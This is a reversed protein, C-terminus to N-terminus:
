DVEQAIEDLDQVPVDVLRSPPPRASPQPRAQALLARLRDEICAPLPDKSSTVLEKFQDLLALIKPNTSDDGPKVWETVLRGNKLHRVCEDAPKRGDYETDVMRIDSIKAVPEKVGRVRAFMGEMAQTWLHDEETFMKFVKSGQVPVLGRNIMHDGDIQIRMVWYNKKENNMIFQVVECPSSLHSDNSVRNKFWTRLTRFVDSAPDHQSIYEAAMLIEKEEALSLNKRGQVAKMGFPGYKFYQEAMRCYFDRKNINEEFTFVYRPMDHRNRFLSEVHKGSVEVVPGDKTCEEKVNWFQVKYNHEIMEQITKLMKDSRNSGNERDLKSFKYYILAFYHFLNHPAEQDPPGKRELVPVNITKGMRFDEPEPIFGTEREFDSIIKVSM